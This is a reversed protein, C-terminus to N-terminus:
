VRMLANDRQYSEWQQRLEKVFDDVSGWYITVDEGQFYRELYHRARELNQIRGGEPDIQVAVHAYQRRRGRGPMRMLSRFLVRFNWDDLQFGLFLLATDTLARGIVKPMLDSNSTVGILYDFYDDETIVLSARQRLNGFLHYILPHAVDPRYGADDAAADIQEIEDRWCCLQVHPTKGAATLAEALLNDPNTTILRPFPLSALVQHPENPERARRWAGIAAVLTDLDTAAAATEPIENGYRRLLERRLYRRLETRPFADDFNVSLYQAVQPLDERDYPAMPFNRDDAWRRAIERTSGLYSEVMGFGLIPTCQGEAINDMLAPWLEFPPKKGAFGSVYWIRGSKLRMFLVPAWADPRGSVVGRAVAMARDIQGDRQLEHFFAPMFQAVTQMTVNGQMAVVAPVGAEILRPALAALVGGDTSSGEEGPGASQCSALVVLRPLQDMEHLRTVLERGAVIATNGADDELWLRPERGVVTATNDAGDEPRPRPEDDLLAGHCVLYLIDCGDRIRALIKELTAAGGSALETVRIADMGARARALEGAVDIPALKMGRVQYTELDRPNAIAVVVDLEGKPRLRVPRWDLSSLYRSFFVSQNTALTGAGEPDRLLEWRLTHLEHASPGIFLRLRLPVGAMRAGARAEALMSRISPDAFLSDSLLRGYAANDLELGRLRAADFQVLLPGDRTLRVEADGDARSTRLDISYSDSTWHHLGIELDVFGAAPAADATQMTEVM